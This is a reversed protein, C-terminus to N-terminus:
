VGVEGSDTLARDRQHATSLVREGVQGLDRSAGGVTGEIGFVSM